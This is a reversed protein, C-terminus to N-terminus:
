EDRDDFLMSKRMIVRKISGNGLIDLVISDVAEDELINMLEITSEPTIERSDYTRILDGVEIGEAAAPSHEWVGKVFVQNDDSVSINIGASYVNNRVNVDQYPILTIEDKPYDIIIKFNCLLENGILPMSLAPPLEGFLCILNAFTLDGLGFSKLRALYNHDANTMPWEEMLGKSKIFDALEASYEDFSNLPLVLPYPHGTDIMAGVTKTGIRIGVIPANNVPHNEFTLRLANSPPELRTTDASLVLMNSQFDITTRYRELLNSGIIGHIPKGLVRFREFDFTTFCFIGDIQFGSLDLRDIKAMMGKQKLGLRGATDKDIFTLGGTDVVFLFQERSDNITGEVTILHALRELPITGKRTEAASDAAISSLLVLIYPFLYFRV